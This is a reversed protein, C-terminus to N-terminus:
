EPSSLSGSGSSPVEYLFSLNHYNAEDPGPLKVYFSYVVLVQHPDEVFSVYGCWTGTNNLKHQEICLSGSGPTATFYWIDPPNFYFNESSGATKQCEKSALPLM